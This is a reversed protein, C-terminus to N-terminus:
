YERQSAFRSIGPPLVRNKFPISSMTILNNHLYEERKRATVIINEIPVSAGEEQAIAAAPTALAASVAAAIPSISYPNQHNM